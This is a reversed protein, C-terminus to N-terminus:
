CQVPITILLPLDHRCVKNQMDGNNAPNDLIEIEPIRNGQVYIHVTLFYNLNGVSLYM